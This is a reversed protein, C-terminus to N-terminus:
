RGRRADTNQEVVDFVASAGDKPSLCEYMVSVTAPYGRRCLSVDDGDGVDGLCHQDAHGNADDHTPDISPKEFVSVIEGCGGFCGGQVVLRVRLCWSSPDSKGQRRKRPHPPEGGLDDVDRTVCRRADVDCPEGTIVMGNM